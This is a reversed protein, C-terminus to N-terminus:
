QWRELDLRIFIFLLITFTWLSSGGYSIFPLPIGIVPTIGLTMGINIFFHVFIISAVCYGYIRAFVDKQKEALYLIRMLLFLFLSVVFISGLFGWEEGITCFIFDTSQEPVFNFKTQTGQLFGKGAIGGSGIAILSQHVNYGAGQLDTTIGLLNEIRSRQHEKLVSNFIFNVSYIFAVSILFTAIIYWLYALNKKYARIILLVLIPVTSVLLWFEKSWGAISKFVHIQSLIPSKTLLFLIIPFVLVRSIFNKSYVSEVIFLITVMTIIAVFPSFTLTLIFLLISLVGLVLYVGNMGERYLVFFFATYVLASGTEKEMLILFAPTLIVLAIKITNSIDKIRFNYSSMLAALAISTSIKSLEAPQFQFTGGIVIWSKSGNIEQGGFIVGLLLLIMVGFLAWAIVPYVKPSVVFLILYSIVISTIIWVFQMGYRQSFNFIGSNEPDYASAFVSIWGIFVLLLYTIILPWDLKGYRIIQRM